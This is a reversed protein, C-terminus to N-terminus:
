QGAEKLVTKHAERFTTHTMLQLMKAIHDPTHKEAHKTMARYQRQGIQKAKYAKEVLDLGTGTTPKQEDQPAVRPAEETTVRYAYKMKVTPAITM